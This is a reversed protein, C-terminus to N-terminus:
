VAPTVWPLPLQEVPPNLIGNLQTQVALETADKDVGSAWVWTLVQEQTLQNYPTFNPDNPQPPLFSVSGYVSTSATDEQGNCRWGASVVVESHGEIVQTSTNLYDIQWNIIATM